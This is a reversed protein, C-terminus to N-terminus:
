VLPVMGVHGRELDRMRRVRVDCIQEVSPAAHDWLETGDDGGIVVSVDGARVVACGEVFGVVGIDRTAVKGEPHGSPDAVVAPAAGGARPVVVGDCTGAGFGVVGEDPGCRGILWLMRRLGFSM